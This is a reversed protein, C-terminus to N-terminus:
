AYKWIYGGSTKQRGKLVSCINQCSTNSDKSAERISKYTKIITGNIDYKAVAKSSAMGSKANRSGYNINYQHNCWELNRWYPNTPNEDKHNIEPLNDPNPVFAEAVLRHVFFHKHVGKDSLVVQPYGRSLSPNLVQGKATRKKGYRCSVVKDLSRVDGWNNVEYLGEYGKIPKWIEFDARM